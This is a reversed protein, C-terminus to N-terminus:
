MWTEHLHRWAVGNPASTQQVFLATSRRQTHKGDLLQQEVYGALLAHENQWLPTIATINISFGTKLSNKATMLRAIIAARDHPVGDPAIQTFGDAFARECRQFDVADDSGATFWHVFFEHLGIIEAKACALLSSQASM